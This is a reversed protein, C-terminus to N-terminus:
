VRFRHWESVSVSLHFQRDARIPPVALALLSADVSGTTPDAALADPSFDWLRLADLLAQFALSLAVLGMLWISFRVKM